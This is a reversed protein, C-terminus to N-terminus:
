RRVPPRAAVFVAEGLWYGRLSDFSVVQRGHLPNGIIITRGPGDVSLLAVAHRITTSAVPEDVHLLALSGSAALSEPTLGRAFRPNMGLRKMARVEQLSSTGMRSTGALRAADRETVTSDGMARMLTAITAPACTYATTQMVVDGSVQAEGLIGSVPLDRYLLFAAALLLAFTGSLMNRLRRKDKRGPWELTIILGLGSSAVLQILPWLAAEGYLVGATPLWPIDHAFYLAFAAGAVGGLSLYAAAQRGTLANEATVGRAGLRHGFVAGLTVGVAFLVVPMLMPAFGALLM